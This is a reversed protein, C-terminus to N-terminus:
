IMMRSRRTFETRKGSSEARLLLLWEPSVRRMVAPTIAWSDRSHACILVFERLERRTGYFSNQCFFQPCCFPFSNTRSRKVSMKGGMNRNRMKRNFCNGVVIAITAGYSWAICFTARRLTMGFRDNRGHKRFSVLQWMLSVIEIRRILSKLRDENTKWM